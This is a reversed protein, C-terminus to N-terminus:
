EHRLAVMPDVRTARRGPIFCAVVAVAGLAFAAGLFTVGDVPKVGFLLSSVLRTLVAAAVLGAGVGFMALRLGKGLVLQMVDQRQAGLAMRIGIERTRRSVAYSVLGYLGIMALVLALGAFSGILFSPFKRLFVAPSEAVIQEMSAPEILPLEPNIGRLIERAPSVLSTPNAATRV